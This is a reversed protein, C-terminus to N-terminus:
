TGPMPLIPLVDLSNEPVTLHPHRQLLRVVDDFSDAQLISYGAADSDSDAV